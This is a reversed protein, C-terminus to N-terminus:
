DQPVATAKPDSEFRIGYRLCAEEWLAPDSITHEPCVHVKTRHVENEIVCPYTAPVNCGPWDCIRRIKLAKM